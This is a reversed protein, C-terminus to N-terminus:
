VNITEEVVNEGTIEFFASEYPQLEHGEFSEAYGNHNVVVLYQQDNTQRKVAEVGPNTEMTELQVFFSIDGAMKKLIEQDVGAGIYYAKGKGFSNVTIAAFEKYFTDDYHYLVDATTPRILDRWIAAESKQGDLSVIPATQGEHLSESEEVELGLLSALPGPIMEGLLLNNNKDKVGARYSFVVM